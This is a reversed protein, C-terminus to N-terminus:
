RTVKFDALTAENPRVTIRMAANLHGQDVDTSLFNFAPDSPDLALVYYEGPRVATFEYTSNARCKGNLIYPRRRLTLDQPVLVVTAAGCGEITGHVTGGDSRYTVTLPLGGSFFEVRGDSSEHQGLRISALYFQRLNLIPTVYYLGPYLGDMSFKGSEDPRGTVFYSGGVAPSLTVMANGVPTPSGDPALLEITGQIAFPVGLRLEFHDIDRDAMQVPQFARLKVGDREATGSIRWDGGAIDKFEFTGDAASAAQALVEGKLSTPDSLEIAVSGSPEGKPDLAVGRISHVPATILRVDEGYVDAGPVITIRSAASRQAVGPFYTTISAIRGGEADIAKAGKPPRASLTYTAPVLEDLTFNGNADTTALPGGFSALMEVTAGRVGRGDRDLVRGSVKGMPMMTGSVKVPQGSEAVQIQRPLGSGAPMFGHKQFHPTYVGPKVGEIRFSGSVDTTGKYPASNGANLSVEVGDVPGGTLRNTVTGEVSQASLPAVSILFTCLLKM